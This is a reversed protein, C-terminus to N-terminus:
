NLTWSYKSEKEAEATSLYYNLKYYKGALWDSVFADYGKSAPNGSQGGAYIGWAQPREGGLEVIMRWSPGFNKSLANLAEAYGPAPMNMRSFAPLQTAHMIDVTHSESWPGTKQQNFQESIKQYSNLILDKATEREPTNVRDFFRNASDFTVLQLLVYDDPPRVFFPFRLLEDYTITKMDWLWAEFFPALTDSLQYRCDWKSLAQFRQDNVGKSSLNKLLVPLMAKAVQNTNDLQMQKMDDISFQKAQQLWNKIGNARTEAYYGNQYYKDDKQEPRNNASYVFGSEPNYVSPLQEFPVISDYLHDKRTGDLFFKGEGPFKQYLLGQHQLAIDGTRSAFTFNQVPSKYTRLANKFDNYDKAKNLQLFASFENSPENLTWKMAYNIMETNPGSNALGNFRRDIVIPGHITSYMTDYVTAGNRVRITDIAQTTNLWKGDFEYASYNAKIKLKYWDRVDTSGNTVGWAIDNNFGIIVGPTGPITVGYVNSGGGSLQIEYWISPFSLPLHPDNCLIAHGTASKKPAIAWCNSNRPAEAPTFNKSWVATSANLFSYDIYNCFPLSDPRLTSIGPKAQPTATYYNYDPFLQKFDKNGLALKMKTMYQDEEYASLLNAMYKLILASKLNTWAEPKYDLLKYEFPLNRYSLTAIYSNVGATYSDLAEKTMPDKEMVVLSKQAAQLMGIRRQMKDMDLLSLGNANAGYIESLRGAAAYTIFDMQWLRDAAVTYGQARYLDKATEAFVHPVNRSDFNVKVQKTVGMKVSANHHDNKENQIPGTFPNLFKGLAPLPSNFITRPFSFLFVLVSLILAPFLFGSNIKKLM